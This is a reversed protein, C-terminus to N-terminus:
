RKLLDVTGNGEFILLSNYIYQQLKSLTQISCTTSIMKMRDASRIKDKSQELFDLITQKLSELDPHIFNNNSDVIQSLFNRLISKNANEM